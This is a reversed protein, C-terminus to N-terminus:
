IATSTLWAQHMKSGEHGVKHNTTFRGGCECDNKKNRHEKHEENYQAQYSLRKDQNDKYYQANTRGPQCKNVCLNERIFRLEVAELQAKDEYEVLQELVIYADGLELLKFSTVFHYKGLRYRKYHARHGSM